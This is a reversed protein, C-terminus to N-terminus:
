AEKPLKVYETLSIYVRAALLAGKNTYSAHSESVKTVVWQNTTVLNGGLTFTCVVGNDRLQRLKKLEDIPEVGLTKSLLISFSITELDPGIFELVPKRDQGIIEHTAWRGAGDRQFDHFTLIKLKATTSASAEFVVEITQREHKGSLVGISM